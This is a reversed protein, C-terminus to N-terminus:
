HGAGTSGIAQVDFTVAITGAKEFTM